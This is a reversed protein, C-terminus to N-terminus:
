TRRTQWEAVRARTLFTNSFRAGKSANSSSASPRRRQLSLLQASISSYRRTPPPLSVSPPWSEIRCRTPLAKASEFCPPIKTCKARYGTPISRSRSRYRPCRAPSGAISERSDRLCTWAGSICESEMHTPTISSGIHSRIAFKTRSTPAFAKASRIPAIVTWWSASDTKTKTAQRERRRPFSEAPGRGANRNLSRYETEFCIAPYRLRPSGRLHMTKLM